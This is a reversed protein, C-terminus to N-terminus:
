PIDGLNLEYSEDQSAFLWPDANQDRTSDKQGDLYMYHTNFLDSTQDNETPDPVPGPDAELDAWGVSPCM